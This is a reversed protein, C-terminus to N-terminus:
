RVACKPQPNPFICQQAKQDAFRKKWQEAARELYEQILQGDLIRDIEEELPGTVRDSYSHALSVPTDGKDNRAEPDAGKELLARVASFCRLKVAFHLARNGQADFANVQVGKKHLLQEFEQMNRKVLANSLPTDCMGYSVGSVAVLLFWVFGNKM